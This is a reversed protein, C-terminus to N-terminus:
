LQRVGAWFVGVPVTRHGTLTPPIYDQIPNLSFVRCFLLVLSTVQLHQLTAAIISTAAVILNNM